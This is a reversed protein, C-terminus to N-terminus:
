SRYYLKRKPYYGSENSDMKGNNIRWSSVLERSKDWSLSFEYIPNLTHWSVLYIQNNLNQM